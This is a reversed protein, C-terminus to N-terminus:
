KAAWDRSKFILYHLSNPYESNLNRQKGMTIVLIFKLKKRGIKKLLHICGNVNGGVPCLTKKEGNAWYEDKTKRISDRKVPTLQYSVPPKIQMETILSSSRRM